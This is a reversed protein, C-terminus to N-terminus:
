GPLREEYAARFRLFEDPDLAGSVLFGQLEDCGEDKLFRVQEEQDVGEAVVRLGLVHAMSIVATTIGRASANMTIDRVFSRDLKLIDLPFRALYSLSSYGTGFDDLAIRLGMARFERLITATADDDQLVLSETIEIELDRPELGADSLARFVTTILNPDRFQVTSVNVAVRIDHGADLWARRQACATRLVWEGLPVILGTEEALPIFDKPPVAGLSPHNWRALAEAGTIRGTAIEV